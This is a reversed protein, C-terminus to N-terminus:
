VRSIIQEVADADGAEMAAEIELSEIDMFITAVAAIRGNSRYAVLAHRDDLSGRVQCQDWGAANGVYNIVVDYHASWFFPPVTYAQGAGLINRAATQGQLEAVVWHEVRIERGAFRDPFRAVDGAAFVGPASTQLFEDVVIGKDTRLGAAEALQTNPRVGAGIVVLDAPVTRGDNLVVSDRGISQVGNGLFFRVGHSEHLRQVFRGVEDGMIRALPIEEPAVVAVEVERARLSAAVELGIFGAGIIAAGRGKQAAAIIARSDALTRLVHVHPQESGAIPLRIPEAGTALLVADFAASSGDDLTLKRSGADLGTVRRGSRLEIRQEKYFEPPRLPIWEEPANGALYEKSLNPRDVPVTPEAGYLTISGDFGRRRLMEAAANGAAGGGVIAVSQLGPKLRSRAASAPAGSDPNAEGVFIRDGRQEAKWRKVPNLAPARLAEGTRLDFCAHHWPCRITEGVILGEGLPGGYHSCTAGIAFLEGNRRTLLVAEGNAHGTIMGGDPLDAAAIGAGLDPGKLENQM